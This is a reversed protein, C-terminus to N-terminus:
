KPRFIETLQVGTEKGKQWCVLAFCMALWARACCDDELYALKEKKQM